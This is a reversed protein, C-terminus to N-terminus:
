IMSCTIHIHHSSNCNASSINDHMYHVVSQIVSPLLLRVNNQYMLVNTANRQIVMLKHMKMHIMPMAQIDVIM